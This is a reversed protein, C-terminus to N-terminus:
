SVDEHSAPRRESGRTRVIKAIKRLVRSMMKLNAYFSRIIDVDIVNLESDMLFKYNKM